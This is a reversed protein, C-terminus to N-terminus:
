ASSLNRYLHLMEDHIKDLKFKEEFNKRSKEGFLTARSRNEYFFLIAQVITEVDESSFIKANQDEVVVEKLVALNNCVIPLGAAQAEILAGGLGEYLSPFAFLDGLPLIATADSRYGGFIIYASLGNDSVYKKISKTANGDRGLILLKINRYGRQILEKVAQIIFIQGKQFEHRGTNIILFDNDHIGLSSRKVPNQAGASRGRYVVTIKSANIGLESVYHNKVTQTISHFHDVLFATSKDLQKYYYFALKGVNPDKLRITDYTCNVLSEILIFKTQLRALRTRLNSNFLVSHVLDPKWENIKKVIARSQKIVNGPSLFYTNFGAAVIEDEIGPTRHGLLIINVEVGVNRLFYWLDATSREAGGAGLSDMVFLIKM